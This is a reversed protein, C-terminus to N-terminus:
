GARKVLTYVSFFDNCFEIIIFLMYLGFIEIVWILINKVQLLSLVFVHFNSRLSGPVSLVRFDLFARVCVVKEVVFDMKETLETTQPQPLTAHLSTDHRLVFIFEIQMVFHRSRTVIAVRGRQRHNPSLVVSPINACFGSITHRIHIASISLTKKVHTFTKRDRFHASFPRM